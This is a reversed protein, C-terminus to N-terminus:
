WKAEIGAYFTRPLGPAYVPTNSSISASEAYRVDMLNHVSGFVAVGPALPWNARLNFFDHGDYKTTNAQDMWYSGLSVWELQVRKGAAPVWSLRMNGIWHPAAEM